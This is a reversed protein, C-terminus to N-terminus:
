GTKLASLGVTSTPRPEVLLPPMAWVNTRAGTRQEKIQDLYKGLAQGLSGSGRTIIKTHVKADKELFDKVETSTMNKGGIGVRKRTDNIEIKSFDWYRLILEEMPSVESFDQNVTKAVASISSDYVYPLGSSVEHVLQAFLQKTQSADVVEVENTEGVRNLGLITNLRDLNVAALLPIVQFRTNEESSDLFDNKNVTCCFATQRPKVMDDAWYPPRFRDEKGTIFRKIDSGKNVRFFTQPESIETVWSCVARKRSDKDNIVIDADGYFGGSWGFLRYFFQSKGDNEKGQLIPVLRSGFPKDLYAVTSRLWRSLTNNRYEILHEEVPLCDLIQSLRDVGDWELGELQEKIPHYSNSSDSVLGTYLEVVDPSIGVLSCNSKIDGAQKIRGDRYRYFETEGKLMNITARYGFEALMIQYNHKTPRPAGKSNTNKWVPDPPLGGDYCWYLKKLLRKVASYNNKFITESCLLVDKLVSVTNFSDSSMLHSKPIIQEWLFDITEEIINELGEQEDSKHKDFSEKIHSSISEDLSNNELFDIIKTKPNVLENM